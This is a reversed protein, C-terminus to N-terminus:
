WWASRHRVTLTGTGSGRFEVRHAGGPLLPFDGSVKGRLSTVGNLLVTRAATDVDLWQGAALDTNFRLTKTVGGTVLLVLPQEAPGDIRLALGTDATGLNALDAFGGVQTANVTIPVTVPVTLGGTFSPLGMAASAEEGSYILPDLAVFACDAFGHGHAIHITSAETMRPRGFMVHEAGGLAFRLEVNEVVDGVPRFAAALKHRAAMWGATDPQGEDIILVRMPVVREAAWEAGSWSGHGWAREGAGAARVQLAFPNFDNMMRWRTGVGMVLDRIQVQGERLPM